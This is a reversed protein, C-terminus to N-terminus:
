PQHSRNVQEIEEDDVATIGELAQALTLMPRLTVKGGFGRDRYGVM